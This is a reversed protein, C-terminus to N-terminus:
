TVTVSFLFPTHLRESDRENNLNELIANKAIDMKGRLLRKLSTIITKGEIQLGYIHPIHTVDFSSTALFPVCGCPRDIPDHTYKLTTLIRLLM